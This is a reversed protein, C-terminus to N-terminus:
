KKLIFINYLIIIVLIPKKENNINELLVIFKWNDLNTLFILNNFNFTIIKSYNICFKTKNMNLINKNSNKKNIYINKDKVLFM